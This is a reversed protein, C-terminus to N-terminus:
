RDEEARDRDRKIPEALPQIQRQQQAGSPSGGVQGAGDFYDAAIARYRDAESPEPCSRALALFYQALLRYDGQSPLTAMGGM